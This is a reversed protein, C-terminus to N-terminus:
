CYISIKINFPHFNTKNCSQVYGIVLGKKSFNDRDAPKPFKKIIQDTEYDISEVIEQRSKFINDLLFPKHRLYFHWNKKDLEIEDADNYIGMGKICM